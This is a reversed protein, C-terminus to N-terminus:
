CVELRFIEIGDKGIFSEFKNIYYITGHNCKFMQAIRRQSIKAKLLKFILWIEGSYFKYSGRVSMINARGRRFKDSMNDFHNGLYLHKPNICLSNDCKHLIDMNAQISKESHISWSLRHSLEMKEGTRFKGYGEGCTSTTSGRWNWCEDPGKIDVKEWFRQLMVEDLM